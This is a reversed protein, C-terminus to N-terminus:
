SPAFCPTGIPAYTSEVPRSQEAFVILAGRDGGTEFRYVPAYRQRLEDAILNFSQALLPYEHEYTLAYPVSQTRWRDIGLRQERAGAHHGRVFTPYGAAFGRQITYFLEPIFGFILVRDSPATCSTLYAAASGVRVPDPVAALENTVQTLRDVVRQPGAFVGAFDLEERVNGIVVVAGATLSLITVALLRAAGRFRVSYRHTPLILGLLIPTLGWIDALRVSLVERLFTSSALATMVTLATIIPVSTSREAIVLAIAALVSLWPLYYLWAEANQALHLGPGEAVCVTCSDAFRDPLVRYTPRDIGGTDEISANDVIRKISGSSVDALRYRGTSGELPGEPTLGLQEELDRRDGETVGHAWRVSIAAERQKFTLAMRPDLAFTPFRRPYHEREMRNFAVVDQVYPALGTAWQLYALYPVILVAAAAVYAAVANAAQRFGDKWRAAAIGAACGAAIYVGHDYRMLFSIVTVVALVATRVAGPRRAYWDIALVAIPYLLIKPFSYSRPLVLIQLVTLVGAILYAGTLRAIIWFTLAAAIALAGFSMIAEPMLTTGVLALPVASLASALPLGPELFDRVPLDGLVIQQARALTVFHDNTFGRFTLYRYLFCLAGLSAATAVLIRRESVRQADDM